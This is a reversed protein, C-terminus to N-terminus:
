LEIKTTVQDYACEDFKENMTFDCPLQSDFGLKDELIRIDVNVFHKVGLETFGRDKSAPLHFQVYM